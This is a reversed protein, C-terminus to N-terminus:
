LCLSVLVVVNTNDKCKRAEVSSAVFVVDIVSSLVKIVCDFIQRLMNHVQLIISARKPIVQPLSCKQHSPDFQM